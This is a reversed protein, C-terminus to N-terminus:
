MKEFSLMCRFTVNANGNLFDEYTLSNGTSFGFIGCKQGRLVPVIASCSYSEDTSSLTIARSGTLAYNSVVNNNADLVQIMFSLPATGSGTAFRCPIVANIAIVNDVNSYLLTAGGLITSNAVLTWYKVTQPNQYLAYNVATGVTTATANGNLTNWFLGTGTTALAKIVQGWFAPPGGQNPTLTFVDIESARPLYRGTSVAHGNIDTFNGYVQQSM